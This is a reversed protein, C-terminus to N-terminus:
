IMKSDLVRTFANDFLYISVVASNFIKSILSSKDLRAIINQIWLRFFILFNKQFFFDSFYEAVRHQKENKSVIGLEYKIFM